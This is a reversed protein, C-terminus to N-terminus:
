SFTMCSLIEQVIDKIPKEQVVHSHTSAIYNFIMDDPASYSVIGARRIGNERHEHEYYLDSGPLAIRCMQAPGQSQLFDHMREIDISIAGKLYLHEIQYNPLYFYVHWPPHDDYCGCKEESQPRHDLAKQSQFFRHVCILFQELNVATPWWAHIRNSFSQAFLFPDSQDYQNAATYVTFEMCMLDYNFYRIKKLTKFLDDSDSCM